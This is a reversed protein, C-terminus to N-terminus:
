EAATQASKAAADRGAEFARDNLEALEPKKQRFRDVIITKLIEADFPLHESIAGMMITNVLRMEGLELAIAGADFDYVETGKRRMEAIPDDPYDFLGVNVVPPKIRFTNVMAVGGDKLHDCWRMSEAPEFGVILDAQGKPIAPSLVKKGFRVHSTVVGGRQAMGAVETKKVDMGLEIAAMALVESATMVGQGGIGVVLINTLGTEKRM